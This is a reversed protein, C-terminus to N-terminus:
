ARWRQWSEPIPCDFDTDVEQMLSLHCAPGGAAAGHMHPVRAPLLVFEGPQVLQDEGGATAVVGTGSAYYLVQDQSHTHPRSRVGPEFYVVNIELATTGLAESIRRLDATPGIWHSPGGRLTAAPVDEPRLIRVGSV